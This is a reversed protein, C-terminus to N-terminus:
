RANSHKCAELFNVLVPHPKDRSSEYEPHFQCGVFFPHIRLRALTAVNRTFSVEMDSVRFLPQYALNMTFHHWFSEMRGNVERIGVSLEPMKIFLPSGEGWEESVADVIGLVNRAFECLMLQFGACIGLFPVGSERAERIAVLKEEIASPNHTGVVLLGPYKMYYEDIEALAKKLSTTFDQETALITM